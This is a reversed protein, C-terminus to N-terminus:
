MASCTALKALAHLSVPAPWGGTAMGAEVGTALVVVCCGIMGAHLVLTVAVAAARPAATLSFPPFPANTAGFASCTAIFGAPLHLHRHPTANYFLTHSRQPSRLQSLSGDATAHPRVRYAEMAAREGGDGRARAAICNAVM